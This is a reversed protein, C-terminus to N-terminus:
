EIKVEKILTNLHDPDSINQASANHLSSLVAIILLQVTVSLMKTSGLSGPGERYDRSKSIPSTVRGRFLPYTCHNPTKKLSLFILFCSILIASNTTSMCPNSPTIYLATPVQAEKAAAALLSFANALSGHFM